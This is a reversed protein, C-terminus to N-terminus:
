SSCSRLSILRVSAPPNTAGCGAPPVSPFKDTTWCCWFSRCEPRDFQAGKSSAALLNRSVLKTLLCGLAPSGVTGKVQVRTISVGQYVPANDMQSLLLVLRRDPVEAPDDAEPGAIGHGVQVPSHGQGALLPVLFRNSIEVPGNRNVRLVGLGVVLSPHGAVLQALVALCDLVQVLGGPHVGLMGKGFEVPFGGGFQGPAVAAYRRRLLCQAAPAVTSSRAYSRRRVM